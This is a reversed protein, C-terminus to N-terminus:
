EKNFSCGGVAFTDTTGDEMEIEIQSEVEFPWEGFYAIDEHEDVPNVCLVAKIGNAEAFEKLGEFLGRYFQETIEGFADADEHFPSDADLDFFVRNMEWCGEEGELLEMHGALLAPHPLLRASGVIGARDDVQVFYVAEPTDFEDPQYAHMASESNMHDFM